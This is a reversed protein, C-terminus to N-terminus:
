PCVSSVREVSGTAYGYVGTDCANAGRVLYYLSDGVNTPELDDFTVGGVTGLCTESAGSGVPLEPVHGRLVDYVTGTGSNAADSDWELSTKTDLRLNAIEQPSAFAGGDLPACDCVNGLVDADDNAQDTNPTALCNDCVDGVNDVDSDLQSPNFVYPCNDHSVTVSFYDHMSAQSSREGYLLLTMLGSGDIYNGFNDRIHASLIADRNGAHNHMYRNEGCQGAGDCWQGQVYDWVYLEMQTCDDGYGEWQVGIDVILSPDEDINLEIIHSTEQGGGPDPARYRNPDADGGTADSAAIKSYAGSELVSIETSVAGPLRVGDLVSWSTTRYGYAWKDTGAGTSFDYVHQLASMISFTAESLAETSNADADHAVVKLVVDATEAQPVAWTYSGDNPEGLAITGDFTAGGNLSYLLDVSDVGVDDTAVWQVDPLTGAVFLESDAPSLVSAAPDPDMYRPLQMVICHIAGAAWIIDYSNIPIIEVGPAALQWQSLALADQGLFSPNGAGYSPIFIRDNVRYANAYTYHAQPDNPHFSNRDPVRVVTYGLQNAMYDAGNNTIEIATANAGAGFESIIVTSDDAVYFWMDIHGTGDVSLPLRPFVHLTDVGQYTNYLEAIYAEGFGPNDQDILSTIFGNGNSDAQFNGGSYYLGIDHSPMGLVDDAILTPIFNDLPRGPYYHSDVIAQAGDQWIFHPGYDRLWISNTPLQLFVVKDLDAGASLFENRATTEQAASSVVVYAIEDHAPDSTQAVVLDTVVQPWAASSYRFIVGDTPTFEPPPQIVGSTQTARFASLEIAYPTLPRDPDPEPTGGERWRPLPGNVEANWESERNGPNDAVVPATLGLLAVVAFIAWKSAM